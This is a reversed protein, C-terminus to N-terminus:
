IVVLLFIHWWVHVLLIVFFGELLKAGVEGSQRTLALEVWDNAPIFFNAAGHLDEAPAGLIVGHQDALWADTFGGDDLGQRLADNLAVYRRRQPIFPQNAQFDGAQQRAGAETALKFLTEFAYEFLNLLSSALDDEEDIFNVGHDASAFAFATHVGAIHEFGGQRATFQM